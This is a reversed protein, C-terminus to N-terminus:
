LTNSVKDSNGGLAGQTIHQPETPINRQLGLAEGDIFKGCYMDMERERERLSQKGVRGQDSRKKVPATPQDSNPS